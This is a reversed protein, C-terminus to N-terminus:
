FGSDLPVVTYLKREPDFEILVVETDRLIPEAPNPTVAFVTIQTGAADRLRVQGYKGDVQPSIVKAARGVLQERSTATTYLSPIMPAFVRALRSTLLLSLALTGGWLACTIPTTALGPLGQALASATWGLIGFVATLMLLYVTLPVRGIGLLDLIGTLSELGDGDADADADMDADADVDLDADADLDIDGDLDVLGVFQLTSLLLFLLISLTFPLNYSAWLFRWLESVSQVEGGKRNGSRRILTSKLRYALRSDLTEVL